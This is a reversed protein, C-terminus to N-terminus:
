PVNPCTSGSGPLCGLPTESGGDSFFDRCACLRRCCLPGVTTVVVCAFGRKCRPDNVSRTTENNDCDDDSSCDASCLPGTTTSKEAAPQVCLRGPCEAASPNITATSPDADALGGDGVALDCPTGVKVRPCGAAAGALAALALVALSRELRM